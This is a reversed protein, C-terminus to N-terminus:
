RSAPEGVRRASSTGARAQAQERKLEEASQECLGDPQYGMGFLWKKPAGVPTPLCASTCAQAPEFGAAEGKREVRRRDARAGARARACVGARVCVCTVPASAQSPMRARERGSDWGGKGWGGVLGM